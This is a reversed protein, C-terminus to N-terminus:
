VRPTPRSLSPANIRLYTAYFFLVHDAKHEGLCQSRIAIARAAAADPKPM